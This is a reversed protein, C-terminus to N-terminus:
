WCRYACRPWRDDYRTIGDRALGHSPRPESGTQGDRQRQRRAPDEGHRPGGSGEGLGHGTSTEGPPTGGKAAAKLHRAANTYGGGGGDVFHVHLSNAASTVLCTMLATDAVDIGFRLAQEAACRDIYSRIPAIAQLPCDIVFCLTDDHKCFDTNATIEHRYRQPDFGGVPRGRTFVFWALLTDVLVRVASLALAGSRRRARAELMFGRPPWRTKLTDLRVPRPDRDLGALQLITTYIEGPDQAGQVILTLMKGHRSRLEDWRCSLGSLDTPVGDDLAEPIAASGVLQPDGRGRVAAELQGVGGGLFVGFSNGPSPEYRGVLVDSGHRRLTGVAALGVRLRLGFERAAQGRVRALERRAASVHRPPVMIVAGDGGFLFPISGPACLNKLAAIAMAAVFNVTKHQGGAIAATSDVIDTVVLAWDDPAPRYRSRDFTDRAGRLLPLGAFFGPPEDSGQGSTSDM